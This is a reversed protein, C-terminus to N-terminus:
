GHVQRLLGLLALGYLWSWALVAAISLGIQAGRLGGSRIETIIREGFLAPGAVLALLLRFLRGSRGAGTEQEPRPGNFILRSSDVIALPTALGIVLNVVVDSAELM